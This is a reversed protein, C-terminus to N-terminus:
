IYDCTSLTQGDFWFPKGCGYVVGASVLAECKEKPTHPYIFEMTSKYVAHRFIKCRIEDKGVVLLNSCHPCTIIYMGSNADFEFM